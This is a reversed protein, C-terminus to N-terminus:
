SICKSRASNYWECWSINALLWGFKSFILLNTFSIRYFFVHISFSYQYGLAALGTSIIIDVSDRIMQENYTCGFNYWSNWGLIWYREGYNLIWHNMWFFAWGNTSNTRFWQKTCWCNGTFSFFGMFNAYQRVLYRATSRKEKM